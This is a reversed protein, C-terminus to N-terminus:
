ASFKPLGRKERSTEEVALPFDRSSAPVAPAAPHARFHDSGYSLLRSSPLDRVVSTKCRVSSRRLRELPEVFVAPRALEPVRVSLSRLVRRFSDMRMEWDGYEDLCALVKRPLEMYKPNPCEPRGQTGIM